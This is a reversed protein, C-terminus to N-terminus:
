GYTCPLPSLPRSLDALMCSRAAHYLTTYYVHLALGVQALSRAAQSVLQAAVKETFRPHRQVWQMLEGGEVMEMVLCWEGPSSAEEVVDLAAILQATHPEGTCRQM